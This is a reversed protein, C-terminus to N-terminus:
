ANRRGGTRDILVALAGRKISALVPDGKPRAWAAPSVVTAHVDLGLRRSATESAAVVDLGSPSGVVLVDIDNPPPGLRGLRREAWSGFVAVLSVDEIDEFAETVAAAVGVTRDLLEALAPAWSHDRRAEVLKVRGSQVLRLVGSEVLRAVERSVTSLPAGIREALDTIAQPAPATFVAALLDLQTQSRFLPLLAPSKAGM